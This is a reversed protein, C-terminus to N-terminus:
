AALPGADLVRRVSRQLEDARFPKCLFSTGRLGTRVADKDEAHGTVFLVKMIAGLCYALDFGNMDPLMVDTVLLHIECTHREAVVMAHEANPAELVSYGFCTLMSQILHRVWSEDDVVLITAPHLAATPYSMVRHRRLAAVGGIQSGDGPQDISTQPQTSLRRPLARACHRM